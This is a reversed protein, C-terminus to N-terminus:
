AEAITMARVDAETQGLTCSVVEVQEAL